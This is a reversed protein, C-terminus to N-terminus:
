AFGAEFDFLVAFDCVEFEIGVALAPHCDPVRFHRRGHSAASDGCLQRLSCEFVRLLVSKADVDDARKGRVESALM